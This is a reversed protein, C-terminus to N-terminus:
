QYKYGLFNTHDLPSFLFCITPYIFYFLFSTMRNSNLVDEMKKEM